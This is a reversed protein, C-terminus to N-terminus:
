AFLWILMRCQARGVVGVLENRDANAERTKHIKLFGTIELLEYPGM